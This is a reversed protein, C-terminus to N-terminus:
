CRNPRVHVDLEVEVFEAAFRGVADFRVLEEAFEFKLRQRALEGVGSRFNIDARRRLIVFPDCPNGFEFREDSLEPVNLM